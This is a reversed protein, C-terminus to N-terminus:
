LLDLLVFAVFIGGAIPYFRFCFFPCDKCVTTWFNSFDGDEFM